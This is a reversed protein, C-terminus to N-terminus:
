NLGNSNDSYKGNELINIIQEEQIPKKIFDVVSPNSLARDKTHLSPDSTLIIVSVNKRFPLKNIFELVKWGDILPMHIDLFILLKQIPNDWKKLNEIVSTGNYFSTPTSSLGNKQLLHSLVFHNLKNDDVILTKINM